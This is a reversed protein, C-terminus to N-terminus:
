RRDRDEHSLDGEHLRPEVVQLRPGSAEVAIRVPDWLAGSRLKGCNPVAFTAAQSFSIRPM